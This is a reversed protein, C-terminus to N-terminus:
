NSGIMMKSRCWESIRLQMMGDAFHVVSLNANWTTMSCTWTYWSDDRPYDVRKLASKLAMRTCMDVSTSKMLSDLETLFEDPQLSMSRVDVLESLVAASVWWDFNLGALCSFKAVLLEFVLQTCKQNSPSSVRKSPEVPKSSRRQSGHSSCRRTWNQWDDCEPSEHANADPRKRDGSRLLRQAATAVQEGARDFLFPM